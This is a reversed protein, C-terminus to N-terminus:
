CRIEGESGAKVTMEFGGDFPLTLTRLGNAPDNVFEFYAAYPGRVSSTNDACIIAGARLHPAILELAPRAMEVWIDVLVFDIPGELSKLTERLDGERLDIFESLGAAAFNARAAKAKEPEHETGIVLGGGNDRLAAALYLTSVGFSTGVEVVRRAGLARCTLYCFEAKAPELAVLKDAMFRHSAEDLGDWSLEGAEARKRFFESTTDVQGESLAHLRDLLTELKEDRMVSM